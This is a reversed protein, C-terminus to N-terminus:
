GKLWDKCRQCIPVWNLVPHAEYDVAPNECRAFWGCPMTIPEARLKSREGQAYLYQICDLASAQDPFRYVPMDPQQNLNFLGHGSNYFKSKGSRIIFGSLKTTDPKQDM